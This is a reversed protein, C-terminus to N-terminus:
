IFYQKKDFEPDFNVCQSFQKTDIGKNTKSRDLGFECITDKVSWM